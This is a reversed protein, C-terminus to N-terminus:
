FWRRFFKPLFFLAIVGAAASMWRPSFSTKAAQTELPRFRALEKLPVELHSNDSFSITSEQQNMANM